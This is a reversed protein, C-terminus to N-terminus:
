EEEDFAYDVVKECKKCVRVYGDDYQFLSSDHRGGQGCRKRVIKKLRELQRISYGTHDMIHRDAWGEPDDYYSSDAYHKVGATDMMYVDLGFHLNMLGKDTWFIFREFLVPDCDPGEAGTERYMYLKGLMCIMEM